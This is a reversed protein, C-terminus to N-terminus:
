GSYPSNDPCHLLKSEDLERLGKNGAAVKVKSGYIGSLPIQGVGKQDSMRVIRSM